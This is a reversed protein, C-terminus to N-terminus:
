ESKNKMNRKDSFNDASMRPPMPQRRLYEKNQRPKAKTKDSNQEDEAGWVKSRPRRKGWLEKVKARGPTVDVGDPIVNKNFKEWPHDGVAIKKAPAYKKRLFEDDTRQTKQGAIKDLKDIGFDPKEKFIPPTELVERKWRRYRRSFQEYTIVIYKPPHAGILNNKPFDICFQDVISVFTSSIKITSSQVIRLLEEIDDFASQQCSNRVFSEYVYINPRYFPSTISINPVTSLHNIYIHM